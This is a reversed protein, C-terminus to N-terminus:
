VTRLNAGVCYIPHGLVGDNRYNEVAEVVYYDSGRVIRDNAKAGVDSGFAIVHSVLIDRRAFAQALEPVEQVPWIACRQNSARTTWAAVPGGNADKTPTNRQITVRDQMLYRLTNLGM